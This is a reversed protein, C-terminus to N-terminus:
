GDGGRAAPGSFPPVPAGLRHRLVTRSLGGGGLRAQLRAWWLRRPEGRLAQCLATFPEEGGGRARWAALAEGWALRATLLPAARPLREGFAAEAEAHIRELAAWSLGTGAELSAAAGPREPLRLSSLDPDLRTSRRLHRLLRSRTPPHVAIMETAFIEGGATMVAEHILSWHAIFIRYWTEARGETLLPALAPDDGARVGKPLPPLTCGLAQSWFAGAGTEQSEALVLLPSLLFYPNRHHAWQRWASAFQSLPNRDIALHLAGPFAKQLLPFRLSARCFKFVAVRGAAEAAGILGELYAILAEEEPGASRDIAFEPRYGAVGGPTQLLPAYETFYPAMPPHGSEWGEPRREAIGALTLTALDEHLPEYFGMVRPLLRLRSWLSTGATRWGMSYLFVARGAAM